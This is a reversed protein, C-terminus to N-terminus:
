DIEAASAWGVGYAASDLIVSLARQRKAPTLAKSDALLELPFGPPLVVCAACVPGALPGRGAEDIGAVCPMDEM